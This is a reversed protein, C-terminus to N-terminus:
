NVIPTQLVKVGLLKLLTFQKQTLSGDNIIRIDTKLESNRMFSYISIFNPITAFVYSLLVIYDLITLYSLKPLDKDIM